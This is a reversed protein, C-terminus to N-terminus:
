WRRKATDDPTVVKLLFLGTKTVGPIVAVQHRGDRPKHSPQRSGSSVSGCLESQMQLKICLFEVLRHALLDSPHAFLTAHQARNLFLVRVSGSMLCPSTRHRQAGLIQGFFTDSTSCHRDYCTTPSTTPSRLLNSRKYSLSLPYMLKTPPRTRPLHPVKACQCCAQFRSQLQATCALCRALFIVSQDYFQAAIMEACRAQRVKHRLTVGPTVNASNIQKM